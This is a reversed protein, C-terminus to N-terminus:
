NVTKYKVVNMAIRMRSVLRVPQVPRSPGWLVQRETALPMYHRTTAHLPTNHRTTAHLTVTSMAEMDADDTVFLVRM